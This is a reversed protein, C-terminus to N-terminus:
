GRVVEFARVKRALLWLCFGSVALLVMWASAGSIPSRWPQRFLHAEVTAILSGLNLLAGKNTGLVANAAEGFGAGFFFVALLAAGAALKRKIWASLALAM